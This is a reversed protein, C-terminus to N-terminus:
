GKRGHLWGAELNQTSHADLGYLVKTDLETLKWFDEWYRNPRMMSSYNQELYVGAKTAVNILERSVKQEGDGWKTRRRFARDPHAVVDFFGTDVGQIMADFLGEYEMSMDKDDFSYTGNPHEYFHQGLVLLDFDDSERLRKYYDSFSPLYEIELGLVVEIRDAYQSKLQRIAAVYEPM